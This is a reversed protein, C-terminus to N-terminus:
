ADPGKWRYLTDSTGENEPVWVIRITAERLDLYEGSGITGGVETTTTQDLFVHEGVDWQAGIAASLSTDLEADGQKSDTARDRVVAGEVVVRMAKTEVVEGSGHEISLQQGNGGTDRDYDEVKSFQPAPERPQDIGLVVYSITGALVVVIAVLLVTGIVSSVGRGTERGGGIGTTVMPRAYHTVVAM